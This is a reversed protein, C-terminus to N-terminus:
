LSGCEAIAGYVNGCSGSCIKISTGRRQKLEGDDDAIWGIQLGCGSMHHNCLDTTRVNFCGGWLSEAEDNSVRIGPNDAEYVSFGLISVLVAAIALSRTFM